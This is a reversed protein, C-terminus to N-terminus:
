RGGEEKEKEKERSALRPRRERRKKKNKCSRAGNSPLDPQTSLTQAGQTKEGREARTPKRGGGNTENEGQKQRRKRARERERERKKEQAAGTALQCKPSTVQQSEQVM